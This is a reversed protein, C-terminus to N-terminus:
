HRDYEISLVCWDAHDDRSGDGADETVLVLEKKGALPLEIRQAPSRASFVSSRFVEKGDLEIAFVVSSREPGGITAADVGVWTELRAARAPVDFTLRSPAHTGIGRAYITDRIRLLDGGFSLDRKPTGYGQESSKMPFSSLPLSATRRVALVTLFMILLIGIVALSRGYSLGWREKVWLIAALLGTAALIDSAGGHVESLYVIGSDPPCVAMLNLLYFVSVVVFFLRRGNGGAASVPAAFALFPFLYREHIRTPFFFFALSVVALAWWLGLEDQPSMKSWRFIVFLYSMGFLILGFRHYSLLALPNGASMTGDSGFLFLFPLNDAVFPDAHLQWLNFAGYTLQTGWRLPELFCSRVLLGAQDTLFFPMILAVVSFFMGSLLKVMGRCDRRLLPELFFLPLLPLAQMKTGLAIGCACGAWFPFSRVFVAALILFFTFITDTQGFHSGTYITGPNMWFLALALTGITSGAGRNVFYYLLLATGLDALVNMGKLLVLFWTTGFPDASIWCAAKGLLQLLFLYVPPYNVVGGEIQNADSYISTIPHESLYRACSRYYLMDQQFGPQPLYPVRCVFGALLIVVPVWRPM